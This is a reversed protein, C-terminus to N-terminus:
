HLCLIFCKFPCVKACTLDAYICKYFMCNEKKIMECSSINFYWPQLKSNDEDGPCSTELLLTTVIRADRLNKLLRVLIVLYLEALEDRTYIYYFDFSLKSIM